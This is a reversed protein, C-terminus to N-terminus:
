APIYGLLNRIADKGNKRLERTGIGAWLGHPCPPEEIAVWASDKYSFWQDKTQDFVYCEYKTLDPRAFLYMGIAWATGGQPIGDVIDTVAYVREAERVQYFNRHILQKAPFKRPTNKGLWVGAIRVAENAESLLSDSLVIVEEQPANSRHNAFSYHFVSHGAKGACMGWQLDSGDAGGSLCIGKITM